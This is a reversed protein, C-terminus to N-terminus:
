PAASFRAVTGSNSVAYLEREPGQAISSLGSLQGLDVVRPNEPSATPDLAWIEGTCFDGFVYWGALDRITEGRYRVGGSVSCRGNDHRYEYFPAHAGSTPQDDNFRDNGEFASWGFNVGRGADLGDTAQALNIEELESQGVDAIWLDGTVPDFSFRWPNRLGTSWIPLDTEDVFPNDAPTTYADDGDPMPNIRLIKGFPSSLDLAFRNPDDAAGGDGMGIYLLGDPGFALNGGNHNSFPQVISLVERYSDTDFVATDPDVQYEAVVTNGADDTYNIYALDLEPHFALGLLGREGDANTLHTIDLVVETSLDDFAIIQGAQEVVFIRGDLPRSTINVPQEFQGVEHLQIQPERLPGSTPPPATLEGTSTSPEPTTSGTDTTDPSITETPTTTEPDVVQTTDAVAASQSSPEADDSSACSVSALALTTLVAGFRLLSRPHKLMM